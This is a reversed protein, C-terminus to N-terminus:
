WRSVQCGHPSNLGTMVQLFHLDFAMKRGTNLTRISASEKKMIYLAMKKFSVIEESRVCWEPLLELTPKKIRARPIIGEVASLFLRVVQVPLSDSIGLIGDALTLRVSWREEQGIFFVFM